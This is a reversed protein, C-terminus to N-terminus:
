PSSAASFCCPATALPSPAIADRTCSTEPPVVFYCWWIGFTLAAGSLALVWGPSSTGRIEYRVDGQEVGAVAQCTVRHGMTARAFRMETGHCDGNRDTPHVDLEVRCVEKM